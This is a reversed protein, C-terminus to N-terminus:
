HDPLADSNCLGICQSMNTNQLNNNRITQADRTGYRRQSKYGIYTGNCIINCNYDNYNHLYITYLAYVANTQRQSVTTKISKGLVLSDGYLLHVGYYIAIVSCFNTPKTRFKLHAFELVSLFGVYLIESFYEIVDILL